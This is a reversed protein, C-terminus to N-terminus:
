IPGECQKLRAESAASCCCCSSSTWNVISMSTAPRSFSTLNHSASLTTSSPQRLIRSSTALPRFNVGGADSRCCCSSPSGRTGNGNQSSWVGPDARRDNCGGCDVDLERRFSGCTWVPSRTDSSAEAWINVLRSRLLHCYCEPFYHSAM